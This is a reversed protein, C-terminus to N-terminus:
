NRITIYENSLKFEIVFDYRFENQNKLKEFKKSTIIVPLFYDAQGQTGKREVFVKPSDALEQLWLMASEGYCNARVEYTDNPRIDFREAGTSQKSLVYPLGKEYEKSTVEHVIKPKMFNVADFTGLYNMFHLRIKDDSCCCGIVNLTSTMLINNSNDLGEIYYESVNNWNISPFISSLNKPGNPIYSIDNAM